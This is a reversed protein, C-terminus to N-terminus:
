FSSKETMLLYKKDMWYSQPYIEKLTQSLRLRRQERKTRLKKLRLVRQWLKKPRFREKSKLMKHKNELARVTDMQKLNSKHLHTLPKLHRRDMIQSSITILMSQLQWTMSIFQKGLAMLLSSLFRTKIMAMSMVWQILLYMLCRSGTEKKMRILITKHRMM